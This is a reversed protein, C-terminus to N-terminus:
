RLSEFETEKTRYLDLVERLEERNITTAGSVEANVTEDYAPIHTFVLWALAVNVVVVILGFALILYWHLAYTPTNDLVELFTALRPYQSLYTRIKKLFKGTNM